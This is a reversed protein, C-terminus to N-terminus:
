IAWFKCFYKNETFNRNHVELMMRTTSGVLALGWQRPCTGECSCRICACCETASGELLVGERRRM